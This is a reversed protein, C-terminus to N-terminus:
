QLFKYFNMKKLRTPSVKTLQLSECGNFSAFRKVADAFSPIWLEPAINTNEIHLHILEFKKDKRHAKCDVRGIFTNGFLIPLCFYGYQRKEKPVYCELRFDFDFIQKVRDRHIISNDFPSLLRVDSEAIEDSKELLNRQIFISALSEISIKQIEGKELLSQLVLNVNKKLLDGKRLHTIQKLTTFGYAQLSTKVLYEALELPTPVTTDVLSPLLRETLDYTKQMGNRGSIMLDGQMFLRELALKAPKWNWWSGTKDKKSEFDRAMKPGEARITDVVYKMVKKDANYYHSESQKVHLMQPLAYRFDRMPLYSAAHFWYEFVKREKVLEDLYYAQFDPIRTWLTHHHAREVVSLTDIQIYGLHELTNLVADKGTGFPAPKILGQRELTIFQLAQLVSKDKMDM